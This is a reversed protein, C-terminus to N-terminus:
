RIVMQKTETFQGAKVTYFYMGSHLDNANIMVNHNGAPKTGENLFIVQRGTIDTIEITVESGSALEYDIATSGNFPNPYNQGLSAIATTHNVGDIINSQDNLNLRVMLNRGTVFGSTEFDVNNRAVAINENTKISADHGISLSKGRRVLHDNNYNNYSIGAYILDGELLFETEGDKDFPLTVWTNFMSSDLFFIESTMWEIAGVGDPDEEPPPVWWITYWFEINGDALGGTIFVSQSNIECDGYIPFVTGMFHGINWGTEDDEPGYREFGFAWSLESSDDARSYVSDTVNFFIQRSNDVANQEEQDQSFTYDISYHGFETPTYGGEVTMTDIVLPSIWSKTASATFVTENNKKVDVTLTSNDQDMEGFNHVSALFNTYTGGVQSIPIDHIFSENTDENGDDWELAYHQIQLDNDYAESLTFDDIVWFYLDTSGWFIRILVNPMGAAVESINAEYIVPVGPAADLPRDKHQTGFGCDFAAWHVGDDNSVWIENAGDGGNMFHTEFRLVVSSRSSCDILPFQIANNVQLMPDLYNNYMNLPLALYGNEHSTSEFPPEATYQAVISDYPHWLWNYGNDSEDILTYGEPLSWGREDTPDAWDFDQSFFIEGSGKLSKQQAHSTTGFCFIILLASLLTIRKKM